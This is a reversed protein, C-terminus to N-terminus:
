IRFLVNIMVSIHQKKCTKSFINVCHEAVRASVARSELGMIARERSGMDARVHM